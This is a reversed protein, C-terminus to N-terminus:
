RVILVMGPKTFTLFAGQNIVNEYEAKIWDASRCVAAIRAEDLSGDLPRKGSGGFETGLSIAATNALFTYDKDSASGFEGDVYMRMTVGDGTAVVHQWRDVTADAGISESTRTTGGPSYIVYNVLSGQDLWVLFQGGYRGFITQDVTSDPNVWASFTFRDDHANDIREWRAGGGLNVHVGGQVDIGNGAIGALRAVAGSDAGHNANTTSDNADSDLHYVGLFKESWTAAASAAPPASAQANGWFARITTDSGSLEPVRVWVYSKGGTEWSEIEYDLLRSVAGDTFRLDDGTPSDCQGYDFGGRGAEFVVLAPFNTLTTTGTYGSFRITMRYSWANVITSVDDDDDIACVAQTNALTCDVPNGLDLLFEERPPELTVDGVLRVDITVGAQGAPITLTGNTSVYDKGAEASGDATAFALSVPTAAPTSLTVPFQAITGGGDGESLAVDGIAVAPPATTFVAPLDAWAEGMANTAYFRYFYKGNAMLGTVGASVTQFAVVNGVGNTDAWATPDDLGDTLGYYVTMDGAGGQALYGNLTATSEAVNEAPGNSAVPVGLPQFSKSPAAFLNTAANAALFTGYWTGQALGNLTESLAVSGVNSYSGIVNTNAWAAADTGGDAPGWLLSVEFVSGTASLSGNVAVSNTDVGSVEDNMIGIGPPPATVFLETDDAWTAGHINTAYCRYYYPVGYILQGQGSVEGSFNDCEVTTLQANDHATVAIGLNVDRDMEFARSQGMQTWDGPTDGADEAWYGSYTNDERVLRLWYYTNTYGNAGDSASDGGDTTRRGFFIRNGANTSASTRGINVHRSNASLSQRLMIAAKRSAHDGGVLDGVRCHVDFDGSAPRSAYHFQDSTGWINAGGGSVTWVGGAETTSGAQGPNGIDLGALGASWNVRPRTDGAFAGAVADPLANTNSWASANTGGDNAGWYVAGYTTAGNTTVTGNLFAFALDPTEGTNDVWPPGDSVFSKGFLAWAEGYANAAHYRYHYPTGPTLGSVNTSIPGAAPAGPLVLAHAWSTAQTGADEPGWYATVTVPAAGTSVLDGNLEASNTTVVGVPLTRVFPLNPDRDLEEVYGYAAFTENSVQDLWGARIWDASRAVKSVRAEDLMGDYFFSAGNFSGMKVTLTESGSDLAAAQSNDPAGDLYLRYVSGDFTVAVHRWEDLALTGTSALVSRDPKYVNMKDSQGLGLALASGGPGRHINILRNVTTGGGISGPKIWCSLTIPSNTAPLFTSGPTTPFDVYQRSASEFDRGGGIFGDGAITGYNVGDVLNSTSDTVNTSAEQGLHWVARFTSDWAGGNTTYAPAAAGSKGWYAHISTGGTFAPVRVWVTSTGNTDWGDIEYALENSDGGDTFRLDEGTPSSFSDYRFGEIHTSLQVLVPFNTLTEAGTYNPYTIELRRAWGDFPGALSSWALAFTITSLLLAKM